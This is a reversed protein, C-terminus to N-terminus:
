PSPKALDILIKYPDLPGIHPEGMKMSKSMKM